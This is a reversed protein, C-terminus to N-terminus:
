KNLCNLNMADAVELKRGKHSGLARGRGVLLGWFNILWWYRGFLNQAGM